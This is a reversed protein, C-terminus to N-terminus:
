GDGEVSRHPRTRGAVAALKRGTAAGALGLAYTGVVNALLLGPPATASQLVFTSYTTFSSLVGTTVLTYLRPSVAGTQRAGAAVAGLALSGTANAVLTGALGPWVVALLHRLNAGAFGGVAVLALTALTGLSPRRSV